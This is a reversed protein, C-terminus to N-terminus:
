DTIINKTPVIIDIKHTDVDEYDTVVYDIDSDYLILRPKGDLEITNFKYGLTQNEQLVGDNLSGENYKKVQYRTPNICVIDGVEIGKVTNGIAVVKQFEKLAGALKNTDLILGDTEDVAYKDMTTVIRNFMPRIMKLKIM